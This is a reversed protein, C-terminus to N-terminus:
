HHTRMMPDLIVQDCKAANRAEQESTAQEVLKNLQERLITIINHISFCAFRGASSKACSKNTTPNIASHTTPPKSYHGPAFGFYGCRPAFGFLTLYNVIGGLGPM